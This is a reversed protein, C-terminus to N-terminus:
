RLHSKNQLSTFDSSGVSQSSLSMMYSNHVTQSFNRHIRQLCSIKINGPGGRRTHESLVDANLRPNFDTRHPGLYSAGAYLFHSQFPCIPVDIFILLCICCIYNEIRKNCKARDFFVDRCHSTHHVFFGNRLRMRLKVAFRILSAVTFLKEPECSVLSFVLFQNLHIKLVETNLVTKQPCRRVVVPNDAAPSVATDM